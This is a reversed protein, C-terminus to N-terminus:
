RYFSNTIKRKLSVLRGLYSFAKQEAKERISCTNVIILDATEMSSTIKYNLPTLVKEILESDYVNM